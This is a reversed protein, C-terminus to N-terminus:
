FTFKVLHKQPDPENQGIFCLTKQEGPAHVSRPLFWPGKVLVALVGESYVRNPSIARVIACTEVALVGHLGVEGVCQNHLGWAGWEWGVWAVSWPIGWHLHIAIPAM